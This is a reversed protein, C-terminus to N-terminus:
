CTEQKVATILKWRFLLKDCSLHSFLKDLMKLRDQYDLAPYLGASMAPISYFMKLLDLDKLFNTTEVNISGFLNQVFLALSDFEVPKKMSVNTQANRDACVFANEDSNDYVGAMFTLGLEGGPELLKWAQSLSAEYDPILFISASYIIVDMSEHVSSTLDGADGEIFKLREPDPNNSRAVDLMSPSNDLGWVLAGPITELIQRSSAGTGCGIDLVRANSHIKLRDFLVSNLSYFFGYKTEFESYKDPSQEFNRKVANKIKLIKKEDM